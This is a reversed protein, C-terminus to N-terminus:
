PDGITPEAARRVVLRREECRQPGIGVKVSWILLVCLMPVPEALLTHREDIVRNDVWWHIAVHGRTSRATRGVDTDMDGFLCIGADTDAAGFDDSCSRRQRVIGEDRMM